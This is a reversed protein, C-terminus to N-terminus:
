PGSEKRRYSSYVNEQDLDIRAVFLVRGSGTFRSYTPLWADGDVKRREMHGQSGKLLRVIFGFKVSVNKLAQARLRVLERDQEDVWARGRFHSIIRGEPTRPQYGPRPDFNFAIAPRGDIPDRGTMRFEYISTLEEVVARERAEQEAARRLRAAREDEGEQRRRAAWERVKRQHEADKKGLDSPPVGDVSVLRRYTLEPDLSPDVEYVRVQKRTINGSVGYSYRTETDTFTYRSRVLDNSRLRTLADHLFAEADPLPPEQAPALGALALLAALALQLPRRSM